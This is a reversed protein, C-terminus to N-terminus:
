KGWDPVPTNPNFLEDVYYTRKYGQNCTDSIPYACPAYMTLDDPYMISKPDGNPLLATEHQRGLICHGMEHFLLTELQAGNQWCQIYPNLSIIKQVDNKSSVVNSLACYQLTMSSDFRIILNNITLQQGRAAAETKFSQVYPEFQAPVNYVPVFSVKKQCAAIM